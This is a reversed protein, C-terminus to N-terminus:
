QDVWGGHRRLRLQDATPKCAVHVAAGVSLQTFGTRNIDRATTLWPM